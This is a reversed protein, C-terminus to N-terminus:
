HMKKIVNFLAVYVDVVSRYCLVVAFKKCGYLFSYVVHIKDSTHV